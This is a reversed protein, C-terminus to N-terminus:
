VPAIVERLQRVHEELHSVVFREFIAPIAMEGLRVHVGTRDQDAPPISALTSEVARHVDEHKSVDLTEAHTNGSV